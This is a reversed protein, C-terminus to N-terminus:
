EEILEYVFDETCYGYEDLIADGIVDYVYDEDDLDDEDIDIELEFSDPLTKLINNIIADIEGEYKKKTEEDSFHERATLLELSSESEFDWNDFALEDIVDDDTVDWVVDTIKVLM